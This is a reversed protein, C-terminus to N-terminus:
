MVIINPSILALPRKKFDIILNGRTRLFNSELLYNLKQKRKIALGTTVAGFFLSFVDRVYESSSTVSITLHNKIKKEKNNM